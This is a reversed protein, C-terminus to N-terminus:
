ILCEKLADLNAQYIVRTPLRMDLDKLEANITHVLLELRRFITAARLTSLLHEETPPEILNKQLNLFYAKIINPNMFVIDMIGPGLKAKGWDLIWLEEPRSISWFINLENLDYHLLTVPLSQLKEISLDMQSYAQKVVSEYKKRIESEVEGWLDPLQSIVDLTSNSTNDLVYPIGIKKHLFTDLGWYYAQISAIVQSAWEMLEFYIKAKESSINGLNWVLESLDNRDGIDNMVLVSRPGSQGSKGPINEATLLRPIFQSFNEHLLCQLLAEYVYGEKVIASVGNRGVIRFTSSLPKYLALHQVRLEEMPRKSPFGEKRLVQLFEEPLLCLLEDLKSEVVTPVSKSKTPVIFQSQIYDKIMSGLDSNDENEKLTIQDLHSKSVSKRFFIYINESVILLADNTSPRIGIRYLRKEGEGFSITTPSSWIIDHAWTLAANSDHKIVQEARIFNQAKEEHWARIETLPIQELAQLINNMVFNHSPHFHYSRLAHQLEHVLKKSDIWPSGNALEWKEDFISDQSKALIRIGYDDPNSFIPSNNQINFGGFSTSDITNKMRNMFSLTNRVDNEGEGPFGFIFFNNVWIGAEHTWQNVREAIDICIKKKMLKLVHSSGSEIGYSLLRCGASRFLHFDEKKFSSESRVIGFWSIDINRNLLEKSLQRMYHPYLAEDVFEIERCGYFRNFSEIDNVVHEITRVRYGDGYTSSQSCFSCRNYYCGRGILYPLVPRKNFYLDLNMGGFDPTNMDEISVQRLPVFSGTVSGIDQRYYVCGHPIHASKNDLKELLELLPYEGEGIIVYDIFDFFQPLNKIAHVTYIWAPGGIIIKTQPAEEKILRALCLAPVIQGQFAASIGIPVCERHRLRPLVNNKLTKEFICLPTRSAEIMKSLRTLYVRPAVYRADKVRFGFPFTTSTHIRAALEMIHYYFATQKLNFKGRDFYKCADGIHEVIDPTIALAAQLKRIKRQAEASNNEIKRLQEGAIDAAVELADSCLLERMCIINADHLKTDVGNKRLFSALEPLALYPGTYINWPPPFVLDIKM